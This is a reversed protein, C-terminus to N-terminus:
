VEKMKKILILYYVVIFTSALVWALANSFCVAIYGFLPVIFLGTVARAIMELIAALLSIRAYGMGQLSFRVTHILGQAWFFLANIVLYQKTLQILQLADKDIFISVIQNRFFYIFLSSVFCYIMAM